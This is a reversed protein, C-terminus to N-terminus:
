EPVGAGRLCDLLKRQMIPATIPLSKAIFSISLDPKMKRANALAAVAEDSRGLCGLAALEAIHTYLASGPQREALRALELGEECRNLLTLAISKSALIGWML